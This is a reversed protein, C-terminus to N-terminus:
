QLITINSNIEKEIKKYDNFKKYNILTYGKENIMMIQCIGGIGIRELQPLKDDYAKQSSMLKFFFKEITNEKINYFLETEINNKNMNSLETPKYFLGYSMKKSIYKEESCYSFGIFKHSKDDYGFQYITTRSKFRHLVHFMDKEALCNLDNINSVKHQSIWKIWFNIADVSGTGCIISNIHSIPHIKSIFSIPKKSISDSVLTDMSIIIYYESLFGNFATM